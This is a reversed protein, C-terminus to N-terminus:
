SGNKKSKHFKLKWRRGRRFSMFWFTQAFLAGFYTSYTPTYTHAHSRTHSHVHSHALFDAHSHFAWSVFYRQIPTPYANGILGISKFAIKWLPSAFRIDLASHMCHWKSHNCLCLAPNLARELTCARPSPFISLSLPHLPSRAGAAPDTWKNGASRQRALCICLCSLLNSASISLM